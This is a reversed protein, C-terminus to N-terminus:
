QSDKVERIQIWGKTFGVIALLCFAAIGALLGSLWIAMVYLTTDNM